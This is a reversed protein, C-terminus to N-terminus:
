GHFGNGQPSFIAPSQGQTMRATKLIPDNAAIQQAKAQTRANHLGREIHALMSKDLDEFMAGAMDTYKVVATQGFDDTLSVGNTDASMAKWASTAVEETKYLLTWPAPDNKFKITICFM